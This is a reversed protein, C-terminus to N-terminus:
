DGSARERSASAAAVDEAYCAKKEVFNAGFTKPNPTVSEFLHRKRGFFRKQGLAFKKQAFSTTKGHAAQRQNGVQMTDLSVASLETFIPTAM